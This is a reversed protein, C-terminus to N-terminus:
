KKKAAGEAAPRDASAPRLILATVNDPKFVNVARNVDDLTV